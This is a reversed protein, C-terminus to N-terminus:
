YVTSLHSLTSSTLTYSHRQVVTSILGCALSAAGAPPFVLTGRCRRAQTSLGDTASPQSCSRLLEPFPLAFRTQSTMGGRPPALRAHGAGLGCCARKGGGTSRIEPDPSFRTKLNCTGSRLPWTFSWDLPGGARPMWVLERQVRSTVRRAPDPKLSSALSTRTRSRSQLDSSPPSVSDSGASVM